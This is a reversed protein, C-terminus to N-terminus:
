FRLLEAAVGYRLNHFSQTIGDTGALETLRVLVALATPLIDARNAPLGFQRIRADMPLQALADRLRILDALPLLASVEDISAGQERALLSRTITVGGGTGVLPGFPREFAFGAQGLETDVERAIAQLTEPAIPAEPRLCHRETLRVAGLPLSLARDLRTQRVRVIELSGGGLDLLHFRDATALEPDTAVGRAIQQAEEDGSLIRLPFGTAERLREAFAVGNAASRVASTAVIAVADPTHKRATELLQRVAQVGQEITEEGFTLQTAQGLGTSLRTELTQTTREVLRGHEAGAVLLKITNSGIDIVAATQPPPTNM